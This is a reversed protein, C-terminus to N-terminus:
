IGHLQTWSNIGRPQNLILDVAETLSAVRADAVDCASYSREILISFTGVARGADIDRWRDGIAYSTTLDIDWKQAAHTLMGPKPKRCDCEGDQGHLCVEIDDLPMAARLQAHMTDLVDQSLTGRGVEPQNTFVICTFGADKLRQVQGPAESTIHFDELVTPAYAQNDRVIETILVGDRDLFVAPTM